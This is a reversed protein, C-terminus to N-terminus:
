RRRLPDAELRRQRVVHHLGLPDRTVALHVVREGLVQLDRRQAAPPPLPWSQAAAGSGALPRRLREVVAGPWPSRAPLGPRSASGSSAAARLEGETEVGEAVLRCSTAEAFGALATLLTRRVLDGESGRILSMDIKIFDPQVALVHQLSAYGAGANDVALQLGQDRYPQLAAALRGYDAVLAHETMEIV